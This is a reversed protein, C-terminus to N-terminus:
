NPAIEVNEPKAENITIFRYLGVQAMDNRNFCERYKGNDLAILKRTVDHVKGEFILKFEGDSKRKVQVQSGKKFDELPTM